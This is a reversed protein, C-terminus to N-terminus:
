VQGDPVVPYIHGVTRIKGGAVAGTKGNIMDGPGSLSRDMGLTRSRKECAGMKMLRRTVITSVPPSIIKWVQVRSCLQSPSSPVQMLYAKTLLRRELCIEMSKYQKQWREDPRMSLSMTVFWGCANMSEGKRRKITYFFRSIMKGAEALTPAQVKTKLFDLLMTAGEQHSIWGPTKHQVAVRASGELAAQLRPGALSRKKWELTEVYNLAARRFPAYLESNGDFIPM